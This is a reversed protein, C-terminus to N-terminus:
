LKFLASSLHGGKLREMGIYLSINKIAKIHRNSDSIINYM